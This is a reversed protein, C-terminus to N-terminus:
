WEKRYVIFSTPPTITDYLSRARSNYQQTHWYVSSANNERAAAEVGLILQKAAETGRASEEVFLDELYCTPRDDWTSDHFLYHTIGVLQGDLEAGLGNVSSSDDFFRNWTTEVIEAPVDARYFDQYASFLELWKPKDNMHLPRIVLTM